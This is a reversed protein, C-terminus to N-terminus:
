TPLTAQLTAVLERTPTFPPIDPEPFYRYDHANEKSRMSRSIEKDADWLRTEQPITEGDEIAERQRKIEFNISKELARFSNLNKLEVKTGLEKQGEPRISVNVDFRMAGEQLNGTNIGVWSLINKIKKAYLVAEEATTMDPESVIELLPTGARNLDVLSHGDNDHILKGADEELHARTIGIKKETGDSLTVTLSGTSCLPLDYQSIQFSKPNDPYFYHKRDWKTFEPIECNLALGALISKEIAEQNPVPLVGPMGLCVPCVNSNPEDGFNNSCGCFMKTKTILHAHIELGITPTYNKAM